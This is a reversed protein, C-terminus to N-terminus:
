SSVFFRLKDSIMEQSQRKPTALRKKVNLISYKFDFESLHGFLVPLFISKLCGRKRRSFTKFYFAFFSNIDVFQVFATQYKVGLPFAFVYFTKRFFSLLISQAAYLFYMFLLLSCNKVCFEGGCGVSSLIHNNV